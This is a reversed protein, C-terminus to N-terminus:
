QNGTNKENEARRKTPTEDLIRVNDVSVAHASRTGYGGSVTSGNSENICRKM